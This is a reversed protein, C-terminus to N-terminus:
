CDTQQFQTASIMKQWPDTASVGVFSITGGASIGGGDDAGGGALAGGGGALAGGCGGLGGATLKGRCSATGDAGTAAGM